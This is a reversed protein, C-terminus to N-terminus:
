GAKIKETAHHRLWWSGIAIAEPILCVAFFTSRSALVAPMAAM